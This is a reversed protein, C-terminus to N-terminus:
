WVRRRTTPMSAHERSSGATVSGASYSGVVASSSCVMPMTLSTALSGGGSPADRGDQQGVSGAPAVDDQREGWRAAVLVVLVGRVGDRGVDGHQAAVLTLGCCPQTPSYGDGGHGDFCAM